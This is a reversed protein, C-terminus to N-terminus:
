SQTGACWDYANQFMKLWPSASLKQWDAPLWPWHWLQFTREPHPMMALHRGNLSCVGAVGALSGNPNLPYTTTPQGEFGVYRLPALGTGVIEDLVTEQGSFRGEGHASWIGLISGAMGKLMIAQSKEIRVASFRSEFQGSWNRIFRPRTSPTLTPFLYPLLAMLQCGNCIGLSFTDSRVFFKDFERKVRPNFNIVGAWGRGADLVDGFSFGGVFALGRFMDLSAKGSLLDTMTVDYTDFGALEFAYAMERDGNSGRERIIAVAPHETLDGRPATPEFTLRYPPVGSLRSVVAQEQDVCDPNTQSRDKAIATSTEYWLSRLEYMSERLVIQGNHKITVPKDSSCVKGIMRFHKQDLGFSELVKIADIAKGNPIEVALGPEQSFLHPLLPADGAYWAEFSLDGAFAMELLTMILGGDSIDHASVVLGSKVLVQVANFMRKLASPDDLDPGEDGVQNYVQALASGGLRHKGPNLTLWFISNGAAKFEATAKLRIDPTRVYAGIVLQTPGIVDTLEGTKPSILKAMMSSSDKGGDPATGLELCFDRLAWSADYVRAGEGPAKAAVMWNAQFKVDELATIVAGAMNLLAETAGLRALAGANLLGAIPQEGLSGVEGTLALPSDAIMCFDSLPISHPGVRQQQAIQGTVSGDVKNVMFSKCCVSPLRLVRELAQRATLGEPLVLPKLDPKLRRLHYVKPPLKGLIADMPLDVPRSGDREDFVVLQGDGTIIGIAAISCGERECIRELLEMKDAWILMVCREQGENGWIERASLTPDGIPIEDLWFVAGAPYALEKGGNCVGGAGLDHISVIPNDARMEAGARVVRNMCNEMAPEPRQVSNHDLEATNEGGAMSSASGGGVGIRRGPGGIVVIMMDKQPEGKKVNEDDIHGWGISYVIPKHWGYRRGGFDGEFTRTSGCIVPEGYCNGYDYCGDSSGTLMQRATMAGHAPDWSDDEWPLHYWPLRLNPVCYINGGAIPYGGRGVAENDRIRGGTATGGGGYPYIRCPHNHTEATCTPHRRVKVRIMRSFEGPREPLLAEFECGQIASSDDCFAILSNGPNKQWAMKVIQMLTHPMLQDDIWLQGTWFLHRSHDCNSQGLDFLEVDTPDRGLRRFLNACRRIDEEDWSLGLERNVAALAAEGQELVPIIRMPEPMQNTAFTLLPQDYPMETMRDYLQEKVDLPIEKLGPKFLRRSREIRAVGNIGCAHFINVATTGWATAFNLRPGFELVDQGELCTETYVTVGGLLDRLRAMQEESFPVQTEVSFLWETWVNHLDVGRLAAAVEHAPTRYFRYMAM